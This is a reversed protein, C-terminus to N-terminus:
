HVINAHVFLGGELLTMSANSTRAMERLTLSASDARHAQEVELGGKMQSHLESSLDLNPM